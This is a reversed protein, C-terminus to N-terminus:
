HEQNPVYLFIYNQMQMYKNFCCLNYYFPPCKSYLCTLNFGATEWWEGKEKEIQWSQIEALQEAISCTASHQTTRRDIDQVLRPYPVILSGTPTTVPAPVLLMSSRPIFPPKFTSQPIFLSRSPYLLTLDGGRPLDIYAWPGYIRCLDQKEKHKM